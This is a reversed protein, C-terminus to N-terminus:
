NGCNGTLLCEVFLQVDALDFIDDDNVDVAFSQYPLHLGAVGAARLVL